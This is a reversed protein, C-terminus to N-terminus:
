EFIVVGYDGTYGASRFVWEWEEPTFVCECTLQWYLLNVKERENRYSDNVVYKGGRGVREIEKLAKDLDYIRLNHLTNIAVVLDFSQDPFPLSVANGVLLRDKVEPMAHEIAYESIDIGVVDAGPLVKLFDHVLFGKGCGIDLIRANPKLGYHKVMAEAVPLWRGDYRFGGYGYKRDGDFYDFGFQKSVTACEAKDAEMVRALYDRKASRHVKGIFDLHAM